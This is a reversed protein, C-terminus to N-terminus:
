IIEEGRRYSLTCVCNSLCQCKTKPMPLIGSAISQWGLSAYYLCSPCHEAAGLIRRYETAGKLEKERHKYISGVIESSEAYLNLRQKIRAESLGASEALLHKLGFKKGTQADVGQYFQTKLMQGITGLDSQTIKDVGGKAIILQSIYIDKLKETLPKYIYIEGSSIKSALQAFETKSKELYKKQLNIVADRSAFRSSDSYRYRKSIKDYFVDRVLPM